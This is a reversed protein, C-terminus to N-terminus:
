RKKEMDRKVQDMWRTRPRGTPRRGRLKMELMKKPIRDDAMRMVHGYWKLRIEEMDHQIDDVKLQERIDDNRIKDRRTKGLIEKLVKIETAQIKSKEKKTCTWSEAGYLLIKKFYVKYIDIKCKNNKYRNGILGKVLHYFIENM